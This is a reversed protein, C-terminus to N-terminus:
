RSSLVVIIGEPEPVELVDLPEARSAGLVDDANGVGERSEVDLTYSNWGCLDGDHVVAEVFEGCRPTGRAPRVHGRLCAYQKGDRSEFLLLPQVNRDSRERLHALSVRARNEDVEPETGPPLFEERECLRFAHRIRDKECSADAVHAVPQAAGLHEDM